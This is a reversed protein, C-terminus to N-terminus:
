DMLFREKTVFSDGLCQRILLFVTEGNRPTGYRDCFHGFMLKYCNVISCVLVYDTIQHLYTADTASFRGM